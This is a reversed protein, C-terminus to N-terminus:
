GVKASKELLASYRESWQQAENVLKDVDVPIVEIGKLPDPLGEPEIAPTLAMDVLVQQGETLLWDVFLLAAAPHAASKMLAAGQPRAIVPQVFPEYAVPAGKDKVRQVLYSYNSAAVAFQGASLLEGMVTHGKVVKAGNAMDAFLRDIESDSKGKKQWYSYLTLYWDYDSLEMALQGDWKPDALDEWSKPQQGAPVKTTNWSPTFLNYRTATWDDFRGEEGVLDRREGTYPAALGEGGIASMERDNTEVVDAGPHNASAEQLLRQLVTESAARYLKVRIGTQETFAKTVAEAVDATMSTYLSVEGGEAKADQVLRDRREQGKLGEYQQYKAATEAAGVNTNSATPSGGCAVLAFTLGIAVTLRGLRPSM